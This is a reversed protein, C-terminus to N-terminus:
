NEGRVSILMIVKPLNEVERFDVKKLIYCPSLLVECCEILFKLDTILIFVCLTYSIVPEETPTPVKMKEVVGVGM